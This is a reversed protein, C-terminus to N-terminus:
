RIIIYSADPTRYIVSLNCSLSHKLSQDNNIYPPPPSPFYIPFILIETLGGRCALYNALSGGGRKEINVHHGGGGGGARM